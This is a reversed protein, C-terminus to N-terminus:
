HSQAGPTLKSTIMGKIPEEDQGNKVSRTLSEEFTVHM